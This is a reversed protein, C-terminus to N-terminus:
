PSGLSIPRHGSRLAEAIEQRGRQCELLTLRARAYHRGDQALNHTEFDRRAGECTSFKSSIEPWVSLSISPLGSHIRVMSRKRTLSASQVLQAVPRRGTGEIKRTALLEPLTQLTAMKRPAAESRAANALLPIEFLRNLFEIGGRQESVRSTAVYRPM